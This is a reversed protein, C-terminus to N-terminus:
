AEEGYSITIKWDPALTFFYVGEGNIYQKKPMQDCHHSLLEYVFNASLLPTM